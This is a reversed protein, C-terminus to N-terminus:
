DRVGVGGNRIGWEWVGMELGESGCGWKWDRM